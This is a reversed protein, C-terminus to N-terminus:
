TKFRTAYITKNARRHKSSVMRAITISKADDDINDAGDDADDWFKLRVEYVFGNWMNLHFKTCM